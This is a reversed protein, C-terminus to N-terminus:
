LLHSDVCLGCLTCSDLWGRELRGSQVHVTRPHLSTIILTANKRRFNSEADTHTHWCAFAGGHGSMQVPTQWCLQMDPQRTRQAATDCKQFFGTEVKLNNM